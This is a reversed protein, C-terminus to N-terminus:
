ARKWFNDDNNTEYKRTYEDLKREKEKKDAFTETNSYATLM